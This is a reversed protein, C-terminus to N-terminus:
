IVKNRKLLRRTGRQLTQVKAKNITVRAKTTKKFNLKLKRRLYNGIALCKSCSDRTKSLRLCRKSTIFEGNITALSCRSAADLLLHDQIGFCIKQNHFNHLIKSLTEFNNFDKTQNIPDGNVFFSSSKTGIKVTKIIVKQELPTFSSCYASGMELNIAWSWDPSPLTTKTSLNKM